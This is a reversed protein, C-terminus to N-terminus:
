MVKLKHYLNELFTSKDFSFMLNNEINNYFNILMHYHNDSLKNINKTDITINNGNIIIFLMVKILPNSEIFVDFYFEYGYELIISILPILLWKNKEKFFSIIFEDKFYILLVEKKFIIKNILNNRLMDKFFNFINLINDNNIRLLDVIMTTDKIYVIEKGLLVEMINYSKFPYKSIYKDFFSLFDYDVKKLCYNSLIQM